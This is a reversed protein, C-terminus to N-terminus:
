SDAPESEAHGLRLEAEGVQVRDGARLTVSTSVARGNLRLAEYDAELCIKGSALDISILGIRSGATEVATEDPFRDPAALDVTDPEEERNFRRALPNAAASETGAGGAPLKDRSRPLLQDGAVPDDKKRKFIM